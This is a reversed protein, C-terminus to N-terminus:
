LRYLSPSHKYLWDRQERWRPHHQEVIQWFRSSHNFEHCHALEHVVVYRSVEIPAMVLRWNFSLHGKSDCSGWRRKYDRVKINMTPTIQMDPALQEVLQTFMTQSQHRYWKLLKNQISQEIPINSTQVPLLLCDNILEANGRRGIEINLALNKNKFPILCGQKLEIPALLRPRNQLHKHLWHRQSLVFARIDKQTMRLPARAQIGQPTIELSLSKRRSRKLHVEFEDVQLTQEYLPM